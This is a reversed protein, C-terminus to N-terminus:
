GAGRAAEEVRAVVDGEVAEMACRVANVIATEGSSGHSIVCVGRVGLLLAGGTNDPELEQAAELLLPLVVKGADRAEPTSELVRLVLSAVARITGEITKLAVNGTFGDAVIVDVGPRMFDRGEVNGVFGPVDAALLDHAAKRLEDGKGAEEGNSLLGVTPADVGLRTRAYERGMRAFQVLWEPACDVTAGADVLIQPHHGPVPVPVAVAPRAM